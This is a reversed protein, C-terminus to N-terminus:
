EHKEFNYLSITLIFIYNQSIQSKQKPLIQDIQINWFQILLNFQHFGQNSYDIIDSLSRHRHQLKYNADQELLKELKEEMATYMQQAIQLLFKKSDSANSPIYYQFVNNVIPQQQVDGENSMINENADIVSTDLQLDTYEQEISSRRNNSPFGTTQCIDKNAMYFQQLFSYQKQLKKLKEQYRINSSILVTLRSELDEVIRNLEQNQIQYTRNLLMERQYNKRIEDLARELKQIKELAQIDVTTKNKDQMQQIQRKANIEQIQKAKTLDLKPVEKSKTSIEQKAPLPSMLPSGALSSSGSSSGDVPKMAQLLNQQHRIIADPQSQIFLKNGHIQMATTKLRILESTLKFNLGQINEKEHQLKQKEKFQIVLQENLMSIENHMRLNIVDPEIVDRYKIVIGAVEDYEPKLQELKSIQIEAKQLNSQLNFIKSELQLVLEKEHRQIEETIQQYILVQNQAENREAVLRDNQKQLCQNEEQLSRLVMLLGKHQDDQTNPTLIKLAQRNLTILQQLEKVQDHLQSNEQKLYDFLESYTSQAESKRM